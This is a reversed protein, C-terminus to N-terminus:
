AHAAVQARHTRPRSFGVSLPLLVIAGLLAWSAGLLENPGANLWALQGLPGRLAWALTLALAVAAQPLDGARWRWLLAPTGPLILGLLVALLVVLAILDTGYINNTVEQPLWQFSLALVPAIALGLLAVLRLVEVGPRPAVAPRDAKAIDRAALMLSTLWGASAGRGWGQQTVRQRMSLAEVSAEGLCALPHLAPAGAGLTSRSLSLWGRASVLQGAVGFLLIVAAARLAHVLGTMVSTVSLPGGFTVGPGPTFTPLFVLADVASGRPMVLTWLVWVLAAGLAAGLATVLSARRPGGALFGTTLLAVVLVFLLLPSSSNVAVTGGILVLWLWILPHGDTM